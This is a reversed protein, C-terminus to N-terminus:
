EGGLQTRITTTSEPANPRPALHQNIVTAFSFVFGGEAVQELILSNAQAAALANDRWQSQYQAVVDFGQGLQKVVTLAGGFSKADSVKMYNKYAGTLSLQYGPSGFPSNLYRAHGAAATAPSTSAALAQSPTSFLLGAGLVAAGSGSGSAISISIFDRRSLAGKEVPRVKNNMNDKKM